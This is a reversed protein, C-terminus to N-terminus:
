CVEVLLAEMISKVCALLYIKFIKENKSNKLLDQCM